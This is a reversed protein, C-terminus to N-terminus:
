LSTEATFVFRLHYAENFFRLSYSPSKNMDQVESWLADAMDLASAPDLERNRLSYIYYSSRLLRIADDCALHMSAESIVLYDKEERGLRLALRMDFDSYVYFLMIELERPTIGLDHAISKILGLREDDFFISDIFRLDEIKREAQAPKGSFSAFLVMQERQVPAAAPEPHTLPLHDPTEDAKMRRPFIRMAQMLSRALDDKKGFSPKTLRIKREPDLTLM